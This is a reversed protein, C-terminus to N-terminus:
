LYGSDRFLPRPTAIRLNPSLEINVAMMLGRRRDRFFIQRGDRAWAVEDGGNQSIRHKEGPVPFSTVYVETGEGSDFSYALWQGDPSFAAGSHDATTQLFPFPK